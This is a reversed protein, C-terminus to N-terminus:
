VNVKVVIKRVEVSGVGPNIGPMHADDPFLICFYGPELCISCSEQGKAFLADKTADYDESIELLSIDSVDMREKNGLIMQIDIYKRHAEFKSEDPDKTMYEMCVAYVEEGCIEHKGEEIRQYQVSEIWEVAKNLNDSIGRYMGINDIKDFIM